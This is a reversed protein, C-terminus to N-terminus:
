RKEMSPSPSEIGRPKDAINRFRNGNFQHKQEYTIITISQVHGQQKQSM